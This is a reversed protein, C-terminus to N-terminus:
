CISYRSSLLSSETSYSEGVMALGYNDFVNLLLQAAEKITKTPHHSFGLALYYFSRVKEDRVEDKEELHSEAKSRKVALKLKTNVVNLATFTSVLYPNTLGSNQFSGSMRTAVDNVETVRSNIM